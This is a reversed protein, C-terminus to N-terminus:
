SMFINSNVYNLFVNIIYVNIFSKAHVNVFYFYGELM